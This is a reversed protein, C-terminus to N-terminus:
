LSSFKNAAISVESMLVKLIDLSSNISNLFPDGYYVRASLFAVRSVVCMSRYARYETDKKFVKDTESPARNSVRVDNMLTNLTGIDKIKNFSILRQKKTESISKGDMSIIKLTM